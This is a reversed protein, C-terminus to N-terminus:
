FKIGAGVFATGGIVGGSAVFPGKTYSLQGGFVNRGAHTDYGVLGAATWRPIKPIKVEDVPVDIGGVVSGDPSSALVRQSKDKMRVLTLDVTVPPCVHAGPAGPALSANTRPTQVGGPSVRPLANDTPDVTVEVIREVKGGKPIDPDAKIPKTGAPAGQPIGSPARELELSGDKERVAAAATEPKAPKPRYIEWAVLFGTGILTIAVIAVLHAKM